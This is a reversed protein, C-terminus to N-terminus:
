KLCFVAYSIAVHSSNLRTSKRDRSGFEPYKDYSVRLMGDEVRFTDGYNEGLDFGAIKVVWGDLNKGNFAQIWEKRNPDNQAFACACIFLFISGRFMANM